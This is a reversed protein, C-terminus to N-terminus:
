VNGDKKGDGSAAMYRLFDLRLERHELKDYITREELDHYKDDYQKYKTRVEEKPKGKKMALKVNILEEICSGTM